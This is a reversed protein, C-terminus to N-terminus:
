MSMIINGDEDVEHSNEYRNSKRLDVIKSKVCCKLVKINTSKLHMLVKNNLYNVQSSSINKGNNKILFNKVVDIACIVPGKNFFKLLLINIYKILKKTGVENIFFRKKLLQHIKKYDHGVNIMSDVELPFTDLSFKYHNNNQSKNLDGIYSSDVSQNRIKLYTAYGASLSIIKYIILRKKLDSNKHIGGVSANFEKKNKVQFSLTTNKGFSKEEKYCLLNFVFHGAEHYAVEEIFDKLKKKDSKM